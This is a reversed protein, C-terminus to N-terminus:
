RGASPFGLSCCMCPCESKDIFEVDAEEEDFDEMKEYRCWCCARQTQCGSKLGLLTNPPTSCSVAPAKLILVCCAEAASRSPCGGQLQM